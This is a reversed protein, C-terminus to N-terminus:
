GVRSEVGPLTHHRLPACRLLPAVSSAFLYEGLSCSRGVVADSSCQGDVRGSGHGGALIVILM